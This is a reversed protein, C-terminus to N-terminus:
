KQRYEKLLRVAETVQYTTYGQIGLPVATAKPFTRYENPSIGTFKKFVRYFSSESEFGSEAAIYPVGLHSNALLNKAYEVRYFKQIDKVTNSGSEKIIRFLKARSMAVESCINDIRIDDKFHDRIYRQIIDFGELQKQTTKSENQGSVTYRTFNFLLSIFRYLCSKIAFQYGDPKEHLLIGIEALSARFLAASELPLYDKGSTNLTFHFQSNYVDFLLAPSWQMILCLNKKGAPLIAHIERSNLLLIDGKGLRFKGAECNVNVAGWLVFFVEYEYHWHPSSNEISVIRFMMPAEKIHGIYELEGHEIKVDEMVAEMFQYFSLSKKLICEKDM